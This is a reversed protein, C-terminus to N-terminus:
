GAAGDSETPGLMEFTDAEGVKTPVGPGPQVTVNWASIVSLTPTVDALTFQVTYSLDSAGTPGPPAPIDNNEPLVQFAAV